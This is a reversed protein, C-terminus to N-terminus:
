ARAPSLLFPFPCMLLTTARAPIKMAANSARPPDGVRVENDQVNAGDGNPASRPRALDRCCGRTSTERRSSRRRDWSWTASSCRTPWGTL